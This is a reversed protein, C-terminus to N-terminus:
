GTRAFAGFIEQMKDSMKRDEDSFIASFEDTFPVGFESLTNDVPCIGEEQQLNCLQQTHSTPIHSFVFFYTEGKKQGSSSYIGNVSQCM